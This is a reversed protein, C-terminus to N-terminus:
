HLVHPWSYMSPGTHSFQPMSKSPSSSSIWLSPNLSTSASRNISSDAVVRDIEICLTIVLVVVLAVVLIVIVVIVVLQLVNVAHCLTWPKEPFLARRQTKSVATLADGFRVSMEEMTKLVSSATKSWRSRMWEIGHMQIVCPTDRLKLVSATAGAAVSHLHILDPRRGWAQLWAAMLAGAPKEAWGPKLAPIWVIKMGDVMSPKDPANGTSYVTVDHGREVLRRGVARTYTEIGGGKTLDKVVLFDIKM